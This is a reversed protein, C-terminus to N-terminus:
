MGAVDRFDEKEMEIDEREEEIDSLEDEEDRPVIDLKSRKAKSFPTPRKGYGTKVRCNKAFHGEKGCRFCKRKSTRDITRKLIGTDVDMPEYPPNYTPYGRGGYKPAYDRRLDGTHAIGREINNANKMWTELAWEHSGPVSSLQVLWKEQLGRKYNYLISKTGYDTPLYSQIREFERNYERVSSRGQSINHLRTEATEGIDYHQGSQERLYQIFQDYTGWANPIVSELGGLRNVKDAVWRAAEGQLCEIIIQAKRNEETISADQFRLKLQSLFTDFDEKRTGRFKPPKVMFSTAM